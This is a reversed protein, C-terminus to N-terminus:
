PKTAEATGQWNLSGNCAGLSKNRYEQFTRCGERNLQRVLETPLQERMAWAQRFLRVSQLRVQKQQDGQLDSGKLRLIQAKLYFLEPNNPTTQLAKDVAALANDPQHLDRYGIAIGRQALYTPAAYQQLRQIAQDPNSFPLNVALMLDMYGKILNLEPDQPSIKEAQGLDDYVQQLKGLVTPTARVAGQTSLAYAGELFHGAAIYIHGRLPDTQVLQQAKELTQQANVQMAPLDQNVYALSAKMAYALPENPEANQLLQAAQKYNGQEFLVKFAAETKQGIAHPNSARFPDASAPTIFLSLAIALSSTVTATVRKLEWFPQERRPRQSLPALSESAM